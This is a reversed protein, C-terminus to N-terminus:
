EDTEENLPGAGEESVICGCAAAVLADYEKLANRVTTISKCMRIKEILEGRETTQYILGQAFGDTFPGGDEGPLPEAEPLSAAANFAEFVAMTVVVRYARNRDWSTHMFPLVNSTVSLIWDEDGLRLAMRDVIAETFAEDWTQVKFIARCRAVIGKLTRLLDNRDGSIRAALAVIWDVGPITGVIEGTVALAVAEDNTAQGPTPSDPM